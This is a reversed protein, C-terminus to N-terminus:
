KDSFSGIYVSMGEPLKDVLLTRFEEAMEEDHQEENILRLSIQPDNHRQHIVHLRLLFKRETLGHYPVTHFEVYAPQPGETKVEISEMASKQASFHGAETNREAKEAVTIKRIARIAAKPDIEEENADTVTICDAWDQLWFALNDQSQARDNITLMAKFAATQQLKLNARHERHEPDLETGMTFITQAKMTEPDIFCASTDVKHKAVYNFFGELHQTAFSGRFRRPSSLYQELDHLRYNEPLAVVDPHEDLLHEVARAAAQSDQIKQIASSDM